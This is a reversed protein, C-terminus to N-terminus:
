CRKENRRQMRILTVSMFIIIGISIYQSISISCIIGREIDGRLFEIIFRWMAYLIAYILILRGKCKRYYLLFGIFIALLWDYICEMLQVPLLDKMEAENKIGKYTVTILINSTKGYCCGALLCGIRTIGAFIPIAVALCDWAKKDQLFPHRRCCIAFTVLFGVLGGYFVIGGQAFLKISVTKNNIFAVIGGLLKAGVLMGMMSIMSYRFYRKVDMGYASILLMYICVSVTFGILAMFIYPPMGFIFNNSIDIVINM